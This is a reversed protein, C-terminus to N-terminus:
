SKKEKNKIKVRTHTNYDLRDLISRFEDYSKTRYFDAQSYDTTYNMREGFRTPSSYKDDLERVEGAIFTKKILEFEEPTIDKKNIKDFFEKEYETPNSSLVSHMHNTYGDTGVFYCYQLADILNKNRLYDMFDGQDDFLYDNYLDTVFQFDRESVDEPKKIKIGYATFDVAIKRLLVDDTKRIPELDYTPVVLNSTHKPINAYIGNLYDVLKKEDFNGAIVLVKRDDTYFADYCTRLEDLTIDHNNKRDGISSLSDDYKDYSAYLNKEALCMAAYRIDDMYGHAEEEIAHRSHEVDKSDFVPMDIAEILEKISKEVDQAGTFHYTTHDDATYANAYAHRETFNSYINGNRSHEGLLHELFHPVGFRVHHKEGDLEFDIWKGETGYKVTYGCFVKKMSPDNYLYLPIGNNLIIKKYNRM